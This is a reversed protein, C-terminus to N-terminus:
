WSSRCGAYKKLVIFFNSFFGEKQKEKYIPTEKVKEGNLYFFTKGIISTEVDVPLLVNKQKLERTEDMTLPYFLDEGIYGTRSEESQAVQYSVAGRNEIKEMQFSEFGWEFMH